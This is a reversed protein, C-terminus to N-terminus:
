VILGLLAVSLGILLGDLLNKVLLLLNDVVPVLALLLGSLATVLGGLTGSLLAQLGLATIVGNLTGSIEILLGALVSALDGPTASQRIAVDRVTKRAVGASSIEAIAAQVLVTIKAVAANINVAAATSDLISPNEPLGAVTSNISGTVTKIETTLDQVIDIAASISLARKEVPAPAACAFFSSAVLGFAVISSTSFFKM